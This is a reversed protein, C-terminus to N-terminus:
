DLKGSPNFYGTDSQWVWQERGPWLQTDFSVKAQRILGEFFRTDDVLITNNYQAATKRAFYLLRRPADPDHSDHRIRWEQYAPFWLPGYESNRGQPGEPFKGQGHIRICVFLAGLLIQPRQETDLLYPRIPINKEELIAWTWVRRMFRCIHQHAHWEDKAGPAWFQTGSRIIKPDTEFLSVATELEKMRISRRYPMRVSTGTNQTDPLRSWFDGEFEYFAQQVAPSEVLQLLAATEVQPIWSALGMAASTFPTAWDEFRPGEGTKFDFKSM